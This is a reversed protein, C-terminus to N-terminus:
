NAYWPELMWQHEHAKPHNKDYDKEEFAGCYNGLDEDRVYGM